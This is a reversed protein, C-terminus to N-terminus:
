GDYEKVLYEIRSKILKRHIKRKETLLKNKYSEVVKKFILKDMKDM